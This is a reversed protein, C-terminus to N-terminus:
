RRWYRLDSGDFFVHLSQCSGGEVRLGRLHRSQAAERLHRLTTCFEAADDDRCGLQALDPSPEEVDVQSTSPGVCLDDSGAGKRFSLRWWRASSSVPGEVLMLTLTNTGRRVLVVDAKGDGTLDASLYDSAGKPVGARTALRDVLRVDADSLVPVFLLMLGVLVSRM